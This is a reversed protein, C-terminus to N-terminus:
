IPIFHTKDIFVLNEDAIEVKELNSVGYPFRINAKQM